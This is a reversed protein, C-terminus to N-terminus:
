ADGSVDVSGKPASNTADITVRATGTDGTPGSRGSLAVPSSVATSSAAGTDGTNTASSQATSAGSDGSVALPDITAEVSGGNGGNANANAISDGGTIPGVNVTSGVIGGDGGIGCFRDTVRCGPSAHGGAGSTL